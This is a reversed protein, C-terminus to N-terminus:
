VGLIQKIKTVYRRSVYTTNGRELSVCITGTLKLDFHLAKRVNIIESNSIRVFQTKDLNEELEYIRMKVTYEKNATVAYVKGSAAYIRIIESPEIIEAMDDYFGTIIKLSDDSIFKIANTVEDTIKETHIVAIPEKCSSDIEIKAQM